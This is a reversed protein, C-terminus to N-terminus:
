VTQRSKRFLRKLKTVWVNELFSFFTMKLTEFCINKVELYSWFSKRFLKMHGFKPKLLKPWKAKSKWCVTEVESSLFTYFLSFHCKWVSLVNTKSLLTAEFCNELISGIFLRQNLHDKDWKRLFGNWSLWEFIQIFSFLIM